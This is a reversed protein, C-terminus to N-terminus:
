PLSQVEAEGELLRLPFIITSVSKGWSWKATPNMGIGGVDGLVM